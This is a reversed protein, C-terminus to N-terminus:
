EPVRTISGDQWVVLGTRGPQASLWEAAGPGHAFAATADIDAWTLNDAVVTVSAVSEPVRGTRADVVHAGRHATGSTAVAGRQIPVVALVHGPEHPDEIGVRWPQDTDDATHCVMDGGASLCFSTDPLDHLAKSARQVAWGKVIGNPDLVPRNDGGDRIVRFAGDSRAEARAGLALVTAVEPPCDQVSVEGRSLRSIFSDPRYTSFVRDVEDLERMAHGWASEGHADDAHRGRMALSIPMGMTHAVFRTPREVAQSTM